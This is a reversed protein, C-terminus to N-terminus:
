SSCMRPKPAFLIFVRFGPQKFEEILFFFVQLQRCIEVSQAIYLILCLSKQVSLCYTFNPTSQAQCAARRVKGGSHESAFIECATQKTAM